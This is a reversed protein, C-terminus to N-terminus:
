PTTETDTPAFSSSPPDPDDQGTIPWVGVGNAFHGVWHLVLFWVVIGFAAAGHHWSRSGDHYDTTTLSPHKHPSGEARVSRHLPHQTVPM